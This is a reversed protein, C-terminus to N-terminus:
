GGLLNDKFSVTKKSTNNNCQDFAEVDSLDDDDKMEMDDDDDEDDSADADSNATAEDNEEVHSDEAEESINDSDEEAHKMSNEGEAEAPLSEDPPDFFDGYMAGM